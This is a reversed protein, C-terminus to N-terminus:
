DGRSSKQLSLMAAQESEFLWGASYYLYSAEAHWGIESRTGDATKIGVAVFDDCNAAPDSRQAM